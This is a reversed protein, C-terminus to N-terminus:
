VPLSYQNRQKELMGEKLLRELQADIRIDEFPLDKLFQQRTYTRKTLLRLIAGRIQRDSGKFVSQKTYHKSKSNPNGFKKKIYAGYDMLAYYWERANEGDLTREVKELIEKDSVDTDDNFFHHIFVSRINTEIIPVPINFAFAMVAGATYPGIGSLKMLEAHSHPFKGKHEKVIQKACEHLMQARRNYGLGQWV